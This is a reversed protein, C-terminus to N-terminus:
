MSSIAPASSRRAGDTPACHRARDAPPGSRVSAAFITALEKEDWTNGITAATMESSPDMRMDLPADIVSWFGREPPDIQMSSVGIDLLIADAKIDNAALQGLVIAFDGRLFRM